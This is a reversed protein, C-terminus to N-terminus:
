FTCNYKNRYVCILVLLRLNSYYCVVRCIDRWKTISVFLICQPNLDDLPGWVITFSSVSPRTHEETIRNTRWKSLRVGLKALVSIIASSAVVYIKFNFNFKCEFKLAAWKQAFRRVASASQSTLYYCKATLLILIHLQKCSVFCFNANYGGGQYLICKVAQQITEDQVSM